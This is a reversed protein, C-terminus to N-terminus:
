KPLMLSFIGIWDAEAECGSRFNEVVGATSVQKAKEEFREYEEQVTM